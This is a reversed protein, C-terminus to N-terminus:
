LAEEYSAIAGEESAIARDLYYDCKENKKFTSYLKVQKPDAYKEFESVRSPVSYGFDIAWDILSQMHDNTEDDSIEMFKEMCMGRCDGTMTNLFLRYMQGAMWEESIIKNLIKQIKRNYYPNNNEM